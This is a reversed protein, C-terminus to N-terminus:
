PCDVCDQVAYGTLNYTAPLFPLHILPDYKISTTVEATFVLHGSTCSYTGLTGTVASGDSCGYGKTASVNMATLHPADNKAATAIQGNQTQDTSPLYNGSQASYQAGARAANALEITTHAVRALEVIGLLLLLLIPITLALEVLAQGEQSGCFRPGTRKRHKLVPLRM